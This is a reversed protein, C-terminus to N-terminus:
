AFRAVRYVCVCVPAFVCWCAVSRHDGDPAYLHKKLEKAADDDLYNAARNVLVYDDQDKQTRVFDLNLAWRQNGLAM